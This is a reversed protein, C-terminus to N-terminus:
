RLRRLDGIGARATVADSRGGGGVSRRALRGVADDRLQDSAERGVARIGPVLCARGLGADDGEVVVGALEHRAAAPDGILRVRADTVPVTVEAEVGAEVVVPRRLA